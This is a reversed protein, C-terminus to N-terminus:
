QPAGFSIAGTAALDALFHEATDHRVTAGEFRLSREAVGRMYVEPVKAETFINSRLMALVVDEHTQGSFGQNDQTYIVINGKRTTM